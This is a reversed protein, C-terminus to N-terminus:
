RVAHQVAHPLQALSSIVWMQALSWSATQTTTIFPFPSLQTSHCSYQDSHRDRTEPPSYLEEQSMPFLCSLQWFWRYFIHCHSHCLNLVVQMSLLIFCILSKVPQNYFFITSSHSGNYLYLMLFKLVDTINLLIWFLM